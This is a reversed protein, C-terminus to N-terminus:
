ICQEDPYIVGGDMNGCGKPDGWAPTGADSDIVAIDGNDRSVCFVRGNVPISSHSFFNNTFLISEGADDPAGSPAFDYAGFICGELGDTGPSYVAARVRSFTNGIIAASNGSSANLLVAPATTDDGALDPPDVVFGDLANNTIPNSTTSCSMLFGAPIGGRNAWGRGTIYLDRFTNRNAGCELLFLHDFQSGEARINEYRSGESISNLGALQGFFSNEIKFDKLLFGPGLVSFAYGDFTSYEISSNLIQWGNGSDWAPGGNGYLWRVNQATHTGGSSGGDLAYWHFNKIIVNDLTIRGGGWFGILTQTDCSFDTNSSDAASTFVTGSAARNARFASGSNTCRSGVENWPDQPEITMNAITVNTNQYDSRAHVAIAAADAATTVSAYPPYIKSTLATSSVSGGLPVRLGLNSAGCTVSPTDRVRLEFYSYSASNSNTKVPVLLIDGRELTSVTTATKYDVGVTGTIHRLCLSNDNGWVDWDANEYVDWWGKSDGDSAGGGLQHNANGVVTSFGASVMRYYDVGGGFWVNDAASLHWPGMDNVLYTGRDRRLTTSMLGRHMERSDTGSGLLTGGWDQMSIVTMRRGDSDVPCNAYAGDSTQDYNADSTEANEPTHGFPNAANYCPFGVYVGQGLILVGDQEMRGFGCGHVACNVDDITDRYLIEGSAKCAIDPTANGTCTVAVSGDGDADWLYAVEYLGDEDADSSSGGGGGGLEYGGYIRLYSINTGSEPTTITLVYWGRTTNFSGNQRDTDLTGTHATCTAAAYTPTECAYLTGVFASGREFGVMGKPFAEGIVYNGAAMTSNLAVVYGASSKKGITRGIGVSQAQAMAPWAVLAAAMFALFRIM